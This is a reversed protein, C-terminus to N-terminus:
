RLRVSVEDDSSDSPPESGLTPSLRRSAVPKKPTVFSLDDQNAPLESPDRTGVATSDEGTLLDHEMPSDECSTVDGRPAIPSDERVDTADPSPPVEGGPTSASAPSSSRSRQIESHGDAGAPNNGGPPLDLTRLDALLNAHVAPEEHVPVDEGTPTNDRNSEADGGTASTSAAADMDM